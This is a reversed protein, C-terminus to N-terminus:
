VCNIFKRTVTRRWFAGCFICCIAYENCTKFHERITKIFEFSIGTLQRDLPPWPDTAGFEHSDTSFSHFNDDLNLTEVNCITLNTAYEAGPFIINLAMKQPFAVGKISGCDAQFTLILSSLRVPPRSRSMNRHLLLCEYACFYAKRSGLNFFDPSPSLPCDEETM